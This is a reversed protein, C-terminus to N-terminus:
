LSNDYDDESDYDSITYDWGGNFSDAYDIAEQYSNFYGHRYAGNEFEIVYFKM